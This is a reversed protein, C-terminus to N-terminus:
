PPLEAGAPIMRRLFVDQTNEDQKPANKSDSWVVYAADDLSVVDPGYWDGIARNFEYRKIPEDNVQRSQFRIGDISSAWFLNDTNAQPRRYYVIDIRGGPAVAISPSRSSGSTTTNQDPGIGVPDAWTTGKDMSKRFFLQQQGTRADTYVVYLANSRADFALKGPDYRDGIQPQTDIKTYTFTAGSDTSRALILDSPGDAYRRAFTIYLTGDPTQLPESPTQGAPPDNIVTAPTFTAGGDDSRAFMADECFRGLQRCRWFSLLVRDKGSPGAVVSMQPRAYSFDDGPPKAAVSTTFSKGGDNSVALIISERTGQELRHASGYTAYVIGTTGFSVGGPGTPVHGGAGGNIHCGTYGPPEQFTGDEWEKGRNFTVHFTCHGASMNADTVVIHDPDKPDVAVSQGEYGRGLGPDNAARCAPFACRTAESATDSTKSDRGFAFYLLAVLLVVGGGAMLLVPLRSQGNEDM